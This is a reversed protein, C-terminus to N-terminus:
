AVWVWQGQKRPVGGCYMLMFYMFARAEDVVKASKRHSVSAHHSIGNLGGTYAVLSDEEEKTVSLVPLFRGQYTQMRFCDIGAFVILGRGWFVLDDAGAKAKLHDTCRKRSVLVRTGLGGKGTHTHTGTSPTPAPLQPPLQSSPKHPRQTPCPHLHLHPSNPPQTPIIVPTPTYTSVATPPTGQQVLRKLVRLPVVAPVISCGISDGHADDDDALTPKDMGARSPLNKLRLVVGAKLWKGLTVYAPRIGCM